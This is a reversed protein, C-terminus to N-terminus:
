RNIEITLLKTEDRVNKDRDALLVPIKKIFPKIGIVKNGFERLAQTIVSICAAVIKPNKADLGKVLEEITADQKEIEIYMLSIQFALDKVKAKPAAYCKSVLGSMVEGVTKGANAANEVFILTAELGREQAMAHSDIVFKKILGLYKNWEPAKEDEIGRFIKIVEEYGDLRAKWLKHVCREDVPLKKYETDEEM